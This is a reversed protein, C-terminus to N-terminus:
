QRPESEIVTYNTSSFWPAGKTAIAILGKTAEELGTVRENMEQYRNILRYNEVGLAIVAVTLLSLVAELPTINRM